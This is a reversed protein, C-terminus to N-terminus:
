SSVHLKPQFHRWLLGSKVLLGITCEVLIYLFLRVLGEEVVLAAKDKV